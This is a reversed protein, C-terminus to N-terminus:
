HPGAGLQALMDAQDWYVRHEVIKGGEVRFYDAYPLDLRNGSAPLAGQPTVLDGAHTGQFRGAVFVEDGAEVAKEVAMHADPLAAKFARIFGEHAAPDMTGAPTVTACDPGFCATLGAFDGAGVAAYFREVAERAPGM